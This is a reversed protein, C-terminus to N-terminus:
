MESEILQILYNKYEKLENLKWTYINWEYDVDFYEDLDGNVSEIESIYPKNANSMSIDIIKNHLNSIENIIKEKM